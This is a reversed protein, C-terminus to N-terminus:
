DADTGEHKAGEVDTINMVLDLINTMLEYTRKELLSARFYYLFSILLLLVAFWLTAVEFTLKEIM